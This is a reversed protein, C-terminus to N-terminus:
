EGNKANGNEEDKEIIVKVPRDDDENNDEEGEVTKKYKNAEEDSEFDTTVGASWTGYRSLTKDDYDLIVADIDKLLERSEKLDALTTDQYQAKKIQLVIFRDNLSKSEFYDSVSIKDFAEAADKANAYEYFAKADTINEGNYYYVVHTIFPEYPGNELAATEYDMTVVFKDDADHFFDSTYKERFNFGIIVAIVAVLAVIACGVLIWTKYDLKRTRKNNKTEGM